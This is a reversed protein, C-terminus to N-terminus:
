GKRIRLSRQKLNQWVEGELLEGELLKAKREISDVYDLMSELLPPNKKESLFCLKTTYCVM